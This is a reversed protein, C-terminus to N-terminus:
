LPRQKAACVIFREPGCGSWWRVLPKRRQMHFTVPSHLAFPNWSSADRRMLPIFPSSRCSLKLQHNVSELCRLDGLLLYKAEDRKLESALAKLAVEPGIGTIDGISIALWGTM